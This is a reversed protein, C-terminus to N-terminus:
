TAATFTAKEEIIERLAPEVNKATVSDLLGANDRLWYPLTGREAAREIRDANDGVWEHVKDPVETIQQEKVPEGERMRWYDDESMIIPLAMCLCNSGWFCKGNRRIYMIHNRELTLDYVNGDYDVTEKYFVTATVSLCETIRWCDYNSKIITGDKKKAVGAPSLGFSPRHGVKLILESLDGAMRESTTFYVREPTKQSFGWGHSGTFRCDPRFRISGDCKIFADLFIMIQRKSATKIELPIYKDHAKGFHSLYRRLPSNYFTITEEQVNPEFGMRRVSDIMLGKYPQGDKQAIVVGSRDKEISGDSLWYGMFECFLDFDYSKGEIIIEKVDPADYKCSRYFGGMGKTYDKAPCKKIRGDCKNLYVMQHEPTVLCDLSKNHFRVMEGKREYCHSAVAGVWEVNRTEPNLSLIKDSPEVSRFLLWGRSTLVESDDSYCQPHWGTWVFDKPYKGQLDDCIDARPHSGSLKIEYGTVFDFQQWRKQEATRYAMNIETRALRISNYECDRCDAAHGYKETYDRQMSPFDSLYQSLRKSLTVASFGKEVATSITCELERRVSPVSNWIRDSLNMGHDAREQFAKLADSNPQFYAKAKEGDVQAQYSKLVKKALLDQIINSQKWEESTGSHVVFQMERVWQAMMDKVTREIDAYDGFSFEGEGDYGSAEVISAARQCLADYVSQVQAAYKILRQAHDRYAKRQSPTRPKSM